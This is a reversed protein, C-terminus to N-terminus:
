PRQRQRAESGYLEATLQNVQQSLKELGRANEDATEMVARLMPGVLEEVATAAATRAIEAIRADHSADRQRPRSRNVEEADLLYARVRRAVESGLLADLELLADPNMVHTRM